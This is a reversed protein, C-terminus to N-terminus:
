GAGVLWCLLGALVNGAANQECPGRQPGGGRGRPAGASLVQRGSGPRREPLPRSQRRPAPAESQLASEHPEATAHASLSAHASLLAGQRRRAWFASAYESLLRGQPRQQQWFDRVQAAAWSGFLLQPDKQYLFAALVDPAAFEWAVQDFCLAVIM